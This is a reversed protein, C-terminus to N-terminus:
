SVMLCQGFNQNYVIDILYRKEAITNNNSNDLSKWAKMTLSLAISGNKVLDMLKIQIFDSASLISFLNNVPDDLAMVM